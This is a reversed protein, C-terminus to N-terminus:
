GAAEKIKKKAIDYCVFADPDLGVAEKEPQIEPQFPLYGRKRCECGGSFWTALPMPEFNEDYRTEIRNYYQSKVDGYEDTRYEEFVVSKCPAGMAYVKFEYDGLRIELWESGRYTRYKVFDREAKVQAALEPRDSLMQLLIKKLRQKGMYNTM